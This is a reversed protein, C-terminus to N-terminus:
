RSTACCTPPLLHDYSLSGVNGPFLTYEGSASFANLHLKDANSVFSGSVLEEYLDSCPGLPLNSAKREVIQLDCVRKEELNRPRLFSKLRLKGSYYGILRFLHVQAMIYDSNSLSQGHLHLQLITNLSNSHLFPLYCMGGTSISDQVTLVAHM